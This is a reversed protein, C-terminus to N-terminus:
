ICMRIVCMEFVSCNNTSSWFVSAGRRLDALLNPVVRRLWCRTGVLLVEVEGHWEQEPHGLPHPVLIQPAGVQVARAAALSAFALSQCLGADVWLLTHTLM